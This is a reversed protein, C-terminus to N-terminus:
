TPLSPNWARWTGSAVSETSGADAAAQSVREAHRLAAAAQRILTAADEAKGPWRAALGVSICPPGPLGAPLRQCFRAAREAGTLDDMGDCWLAFTTADLRGLLDTPRIIDRLEEALQTAVAGRGVPPTRSFGLLLLTGPLGEVDLRDFRRGVADAFSAASWLGTQPDLMVRGFQAGPAVVRLTPADLNILLGYVGDAWEAATEAAPDPVAQPGLRSVARKLAVLRPAALRPAALRPALFLQYVGQTGDARQLGVIGRWAIKRSHLSAFIAGISTAGSDFDASLAVLDGLNQGLLDPAAYGLVDPGGFATFGGALDTEFAIDTLLAAINLWNARPRSYPEPIPLM